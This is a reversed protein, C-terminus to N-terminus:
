IYNFILIVLDVVLFVLQITLLRDLWAYDKFKFQKPWRPQYALRSNKTILTREIDVMLSRIEEETAPTKDNIGAALRKKLYMLDDFSSLVIVPLDRTLQYHRTKKTRYAYYRYYRNGFHSRTWNKGYYLHPEIVAIKPVVFDFHTPLRHQAPVLVKFYKRLYHTLLECTLYEFFSLHYPHQLTSCLALQGPIRLVYHQFKKVM